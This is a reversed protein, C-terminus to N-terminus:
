GEIILPKLVSNGQKSDFGRFQIVRYRKLTSFDPAVPKGRNEYKEAIRNLVWEKVAAPAENEIITTTGDPNTVVTSFDTNLFQEAEDMAAAKLTEIIDSDTGPDIRLYNEVENAGFTIKLPM